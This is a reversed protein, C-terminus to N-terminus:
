SVTRYDFRTVTADAGIAEVGIVRGTFGGAVETSLYRGDIAAIEVFDGDADYGLLIRDPGQRQGREGGFPVARVAPRSGRPASISGLVQDLPGIIVRASFTDGVREVTAQHADDIRVVLAIDGVATVAAEWEFDTARVALLKSSERHDSQRGARLRLGGPGPEAFNAPHAGPSIWRPHLPTTAFEDSFDRRVSPVAFRDEDVMPWDDVWDLGVVFTERGNTHWRPFSGRQRIGLHVMAWQGDVLEVIDAHGTAQVALSTSRHSLIPNDPASEYPGDISASRAITVMHGAATGGEAALLYWWDGRAFVHPGEAHAGGSGRWIEKPSSLVEGTEPNIEAQSIGGNVVDSWTLRCVGDHGWVLDPDIGILGTTYVPESWPGAPDSAHVILHGRAVDHQNTTTMWLRGDHHRVTPAYIGGNAGGIGPRVNLQSPRDLVNGLQQWDVLDRSTFIPVGPAYEFSSTVLVYEDGVRCISPDPHFGAIAPLDSM